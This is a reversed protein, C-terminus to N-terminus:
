VGRGLLCPCGQWRLAPACATSACAYSVARDTLAPGRALVDTGHGSGPEVGLPLAAKGGARARAGVFEAFAKDCAAGLAALELRNAVVSGAAGGAEVDVASGTAHAGHQHGAAVVREFPVGAVEVLALRLSHAWM